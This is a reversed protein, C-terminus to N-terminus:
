KVFPVEGKLFDQLWEPVADADEEKLRLPLAGTGFNWSLARNLMGLRYARNFADLLQGRAAFREFPGLYADRLRQMEPGSEELKLRYAAARITVVMTFFPHAVSSDSWDAFIYREGEVLVNADHVEEHTLTEPIGFAALEECWIKLQPALGKLREYEDTTLGPEQRVRLNENTPDLIEAYLQPLKALRRDPTGFDLVERVRPALEIQMDACIPLLKVWHEIQEVGPYASRLTVGAQESLFWGRDLDVAIVPVTVDPRWRSLAETLRAEFDSLPPAPAKFFVVGHDTSVRIFTSWPRQHLVEVPETRRRSLKTLEADIWATVEDLWGQREWPLESIKITM